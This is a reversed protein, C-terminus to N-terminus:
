EETRIESGSIDIIDDFSIKVKVITLTRFTFDVASVLGELTEYADANYYVICLMSGKRVQALKDSLIAAEEESLVRRPEKVREREAILDYYGRLAAFPIFQRARDSM